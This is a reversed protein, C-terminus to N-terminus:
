RLTAVVTYAPPQRCFTRRSARPLRQWYFPAWLKEWRVMIRARTALFKSNSLTDLAPPAKAFAAFPDKGDLGVAVTWSIRSFSSASKAAIPVLCLECVFNATGARSLTQEDAEVPAM